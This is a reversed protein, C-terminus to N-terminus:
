FRVTPILVITPHLKYTDFIIVVNDFKDDFLVIFEFKITPLLAIM